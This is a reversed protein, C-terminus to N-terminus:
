RTPQVRPRHLVLTGTAGPLRAITRGPVHRGMADVRMYLAHFM